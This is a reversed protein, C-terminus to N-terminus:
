LQIQKALFSLTHEEISHLTSPTITHLSGNQQILSLLQAHKQLYPQQLQFTSATHQLNERSKVIGICPIGKSLLRFLSNVFLPSTLEIGGIEDLVVLKSHTACEETQAITKELVAIDKQGNSLFINPLSPHHELEILPLPEQHTVHAQYGTITGNHLIRQVTFGCIQTTKRNIVNRLCTSKGIRVPGQFFLLHPM